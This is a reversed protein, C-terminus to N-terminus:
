QIIFIFGLKEREEYDRLGRDLTAEWTATAEM